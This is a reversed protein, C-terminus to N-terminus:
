WAPRSEITERRPASAAGNAKVRSTSGTRSTRGLSRLLSWACSSWSVAPRHACAQVHVAFVTTTRGPVAPFTPPRRRAARTPASPQARRSSCPPSRRRRRDGRDDRGVLGFRDGGVRPLEDRSGDADLQPLLPDPASEGRVSAPRTRNLGAAPGVLEVSRCPLAGPRAGGSPSSSAERARPRRSGCRRCARGRRAQSTPSSSRRRSLAALPARQRGGAPLRSAITPSVASAASRVVFSALASPIM